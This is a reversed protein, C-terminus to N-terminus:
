IPQGDQWLANKKLKYTTEMSGDALIRWGGNEQTPLEEDLYPVPGKNQPSFYVLFGSAIASWERNMPQFAPELSTPGRTLATVLARRAPTQRNQAASGTDGTAPARTPASCA